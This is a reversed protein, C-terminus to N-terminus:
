CCGFPYGSVYHTYTTVRRKNKKGCNKIVQNFVVCLLNRAFM